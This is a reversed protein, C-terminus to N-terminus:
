ELIELSSFSIPAFTIQKRSDCGQLCIRVIAVREHTIFTCIVFAVFDASFHFLLAM